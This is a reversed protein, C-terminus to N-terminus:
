EKQLETVQQKLKEVETELRDLRGNSLKQYDTLDNIIQDYRSYIENYYEENQQQLSRQINEQQIMGELSQRSNYLVSFTFMLIVGCVTFALAAVFTAILKKVFDEM